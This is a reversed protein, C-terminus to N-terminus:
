ELYFEVSKETFLAKRCKMRTSDQIEDFTIIESRHLFYDEGNKEYM